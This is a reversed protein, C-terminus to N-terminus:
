HRLHFHKIYKLERSQSYDWKFRWYEHNLAVRAFSIQDRASYKSLEEWWENCLNICAENKERLLVGSTIIGKFTPVGQLRYEFGQRQIEEANGRRNAICSQVEQQWCHRIPHAPCSFPSKFYKNWFINLDINIQFSADLWFTYDYLPLFIHPLIKIKRAMRQATLGAEIEIKRIQWVKSTIPQDTFCIFDFGAPIIAPEKLEEYPSIIATYIAKNM